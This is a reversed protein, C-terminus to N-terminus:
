GEQTTLRAPFLRDVQAAPIEFVRNNVVLYDFGTSNILAITLPEAFGMITLRVVAEPALQVSAGVIEVVELKLWDTELQQMQQLSLQASSSRWGQGIREIKVAPYDMTLIVAGSELLQITEPTPDIADTPSRDNMLNLIIIMLSISIILLNNFGKRSLRLM